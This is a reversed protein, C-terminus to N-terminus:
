KPSHNRFYTEVESLTTQIKRLNQTIFSEGSSKSALGVAPDGSQLESLDLFYQQM